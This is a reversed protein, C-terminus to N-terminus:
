HRTSATSRVIELLFMGTSHKFAGKVKVPRNSALQATGMFMTDNPEFREVRAAETELSEAMRSNWSDAFAVDMEFIGALPGNKCHGTAFRSFSESDCHGLVILRKSERSNRDYREIYMTGTPNLEAIFERGWDIESPSTVSKRTFSEDTVVAWIGVAVFVLGPVAVCGLLRRVSHNDNPSTDNV